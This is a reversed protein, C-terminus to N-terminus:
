VLVVITTGSPPPGSFTVTQNLVSITYSTNPIQVIGDITVQYSSAAPNTINSLQFTTTVGDGTFVFYAANTSTTGTGSTSATTTASVSATALAALTNTILYAEPSSYNGASYLAAPLGASIIAYGTSYTPDNDFYENTDYLEVMEISFATNVSTLYPLSTLISPNTIVFSTTITGDPTIKRTFATLIYNYFLRELSLATGILNNKLKSYVINNRTNAIYVTIDKLRRAFGVIAAQISLNNTFSVNNFLQQEYPTHATVGLSQLFQIYYTQVASVAASNSVTNNLYWTRVYAEYQNYANTPNIESNRLSWERYSYPQMIDTNNVTSNTNSITNITNFLAM